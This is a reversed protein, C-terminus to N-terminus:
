HNSRIMILIKYLLNLSLTASQARLVWERSCYTDNHFYYYEYKAINNHFNICKKRSKSTSPEAFYHAVISYGKDLLLM